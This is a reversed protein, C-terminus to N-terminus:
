KSDPTWYQERRPWFLIVDWDLIQGDECVFWVGGPAPPDDNHGKRHAFASLLQWPPCYIVIPKMGRPTTLYTHVHARLYVDACQEGRQAARMAAINSQRVPAMSETWPLWGATQPHHAISFRVGAMDLPLHWWSFTGTEKDKEGNLAKALTEELEGQGGGHAETGRIFFRRDVPGAAKITQEAMKPVDSRVHCHLGAGDHTNMDCTDGNYVAWTEDVNYKAKVKEIKKWFQLWAKWLAISVPRLKIGDGSHKVFDPPCLGVVSNCHLDAVIAALIRM